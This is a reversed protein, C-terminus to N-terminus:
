AVLFARVAADNNHEALFDLFEDKPLPRSFYFGQIFSIGLGIMADLQEKTEVGEAVIPLGMKKM